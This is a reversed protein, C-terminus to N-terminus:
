PQKRYVWYSYLVSILAISLAAFVTFKFATETEALFGVGAISIGGVIFLIGGLKHTKSWVETSELTWPTRIGIFYNPKIRNMFSGLVIFLLGVIPLIMEPAPMEDNRTMQILALALVAMVGVLALKLKGYGAGMESIRKKPDLIPIVSLLIYILGTTVFPIFWLESKSGWRDVEGQLNWHLPVNDPLADWILGLYVFPIFVLILAFGDKKLYNKM